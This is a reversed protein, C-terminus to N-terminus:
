DSIPSTTSEETEVDGDTPDAEEAAGEDETVDLDIDIVMDDLDDFTVDPTKRKMSVWVLAQLFDLSAGGAAVLEAYKSGTIKEIARGEAFTVRDWQVMEYEVGDVTFKAM